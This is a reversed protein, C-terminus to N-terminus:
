QGKLEHDMLMLVRKGMEISFWKIYKGTQIVRFYYRGKLFHQPKKTQQNTKQKQKQINKGEVWDHNEKGHTSESSRSINVTTENKESIKRSHYFIDCVSLSPLM